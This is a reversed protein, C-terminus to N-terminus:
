TAKLVEKVHQFPEITLVELGCLCVYQRSNVKLAYWTEMEGRERLKPKPVGKLGKKWGWM